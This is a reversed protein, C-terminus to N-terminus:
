TPGDQISLSASVPAVEAPWRRSAYAKVCKDDCFIPYGPHEDEGIYVTKRGCHDCLMYNAM